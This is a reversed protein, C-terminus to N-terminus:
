NQLAVFVLLGILALQALLRPWFPIAARGFTEPDRAAYANAPFVAILFVILAIAAVTQLPPIQLGIGGAVECVGTFWVLYRARVFRMRPPIMAGMGRAIAPVFHLVGMGIFMITLAITVIERTIQM